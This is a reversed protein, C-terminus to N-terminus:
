WYNATVVLQYSCHHRKCIDKAWEELQNKQEELRDWTITDGYGYTVMDFVVIDGENATIQYDDDYESEMVLTHYENGNEGGLRIDTEDHDSETLIDRYTKRALNDPTLVAMLIANPHTSMVGGKDNQIHLLSGVPQKGMYVEQQQSEM